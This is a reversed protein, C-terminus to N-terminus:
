PRVACPFLFGPNRGCAREEAGQRVRTAAEAAANPRILGLHQASTRLTEAALRQAFPGFYFRQTDGAHEGETWLVFYFGPDLPRGDRLVSHHGRRRTSSIMSGDGCVEVIANTGPKM